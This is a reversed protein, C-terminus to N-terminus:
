LHPWESVGGCDCCLGGGLVESGFSEFPARRVWVYKTFFGYWVRRYKGLVAGIILGRGAWFWFVIRLFCTSRFPFAKTITSALSFRYSGSAYWLDWSGSIDWSGSNSISVALGPAGYRGTCTQSLLCFGTVRFTYCEGGPEIDIAVRLLVSFVSHPILWFRVMRMLFLFLISNVFVWDLKLLDHLIGACIAYRISGLGLGGCM